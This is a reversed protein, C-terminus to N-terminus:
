LLKKKTILIHYRHNPYNNKKISIKSPPDQFLIKNNLSIFILMPLNSFFSFFLLLM